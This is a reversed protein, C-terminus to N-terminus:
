LSLCLSSTDSERRPAGNDEISLIWGDMWGISEEGFGRGQITALPPTQIITPIRWGKFNLLLRIDRRVAAPDATFKDLLDAVALRKEKRAVEAPSYERRDGFVDRGWTGVHFGRGSGLMWRVMDTHGHCAATWLPTCGESDGLNVEVRRDWLLVKVVETRGLHCALLLPTSGGGGSGGGSGPGLRSNVRINPQSLLLESVIEHHGAKCSAQLSTMGTGPHVWNIDLGFRLLRRLEELQNQACATYLHEEM